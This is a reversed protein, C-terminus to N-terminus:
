YLKRSHSRSAYIVEDLDTVHGGLWTRFTAELFLLDPGIFFGCDLFSVVQSVNIPQQSFELEMEVKLNYRGVRENKEEPAQPGIGYLHL